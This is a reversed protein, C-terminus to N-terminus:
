FKVIQLPNRQILRVRRLRQVPRHLKDRAAPPLLSHMQKPLRILSPTPCRRFSSSSDASPASSRLHSSTALDPHPRLPPLPRAANPAARTSSPASTTVASAASAPSAAPETATSSSPPSSSSRSSHFGFPFNLIASRATCAEEKSLTTSSGKSIVLGDPLCPRAGILFFKGGRIVM